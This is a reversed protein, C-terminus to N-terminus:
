LLAVEKTLIDKQQTLEKIEFAMTDGAKKDSSINDIAEFLKRYEDQLYAITHNSLAQTM